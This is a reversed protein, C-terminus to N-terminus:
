RGSAAAGGAASSIGLLIGISFSNPHSSYFGNAFDFWGQMFDGLEGDGGTLLLVLVLIFSLVSVVIGIVYGVFLSKLTQM